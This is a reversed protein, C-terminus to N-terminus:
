MGQAALCEDARAADLGLQDALWTFNEAIVEGPLEHGGDFWRVESSSPAASHLKEATEPTVFPDTRGNHFLFNATSDGIYLTADLPAMLRVWEERQEEPVESLPGIAEGDPMFRDIVSGNGIMFGYAVIRDELGALVSGIAVGWSWTWLGLRTAGAEELADVARKAEITFLIQEERDTETFTLPEAMRGERVYPPNITIATAGSCALLALPDRNETATEPLGPLVLVGVDSAGEPPYGIIGTVRDGDPNNYEISRLDADGFPVPVTETFGLPEGGSHDFVSAGLRGDESSSGGCAAAVLVFSISLIRRRM